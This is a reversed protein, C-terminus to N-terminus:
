IPLIQCKKQDYKYRIISGDLFMAIAQEIVPLPLLFWERPKFPKNFRDMIEINLKADSFFRHILGEFKNANLNITDYTRVPHVPALLFTPDDKASSIRDEFRGTTFGIKFLHGDLKAIEPLSSLSRVIYICGTIKDGAGAVTVTSTAGGFLPGANPESIRRGNPDKYLETALSRLLNNGETGNDFILRLRANRKGNRIHPDRVEAVYIMVGNLIFLGGAEIEQENAFPMSKRIGLQLENVVKDFIPKYDDFDQCPKRVSVRDPKAVDSRVHKITFINEASENLLDDDMALIDELSEPDAASVSLLNHRDLHLLNEVINPHERLSQLRIQLTYETISPKKDSNDGPLRKHRDIFENIEEFDREIRTQPTAKVVGLKVNLLGLEDDELLLQDLTRRSMKLCKGERPM